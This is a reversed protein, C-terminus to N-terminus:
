LHKSESDSSQTPIQKALWALFQPKHFRLSRLTGFLKFVGPIENKNVKAIIKSM